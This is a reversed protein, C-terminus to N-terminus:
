DKQLAKYQRKLEDIEKQQEKIANILVPILGQYNVSLTGQEDTAEKVLEPFVDQVDQALLGIKQKSENSKFTYRKGDLALLRVLTSGLSIINSKLRADSNITLDGAITTTGDFLVTMADSKGSFDSGNGIIFARNALDFNNNPTTDITNNQGIAFTGYDSATTDHGMATSYTGSATTDFGMATSLVGSATTRYGMTTSTDGSATTVEGMATSYIGSATNGPAEIGTPQTANFGFPGSPLNTLGSGDGSFSTATVAGAITTTGDFLVMMANSKNSGDLGNGIVFARNALSFDFPNPTTDETNYHGIAVTGLDDATTNIGMVTSALGSATTYYGMSTAYEAGATTNQGLATSAWRSATTTQGLATSYSGSAINTFFSYIGTGNSNIPMNTLGSGDGIFATATVPGAITTTGDFLVTFADSLNVEDLGNGIIFARSESNFSYPNPTTDDTNYHGISVTGLDSATTNFGSAISAWGNATTYYGMSTAYEASATTGEGLATTAWLTATTSLGLATSYEGSALNGPAEIGTPELTNFSLPMNTLGSGDGSFSSATVPGAITTTGDFLVTFADSKNEDNAGNGIVIATNTL